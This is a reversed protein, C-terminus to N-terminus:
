TLPIIIADRHINIARTGNITGMTFQVRIRVEFRGLNGTTGNNTITGNNTLTAGDAVEVYGYNVLTAGETIIITGAPQSPHTDVNLRGGELIVLTGEIRLVADRRVNLVTAVYLTKGEPVVLTTGTTIGYGGAGPTSIVVANNDALAINLQTPNTGIFEVACDLCSGCPAADLEGTDLLEGCIACRIEWIGKETCTPEVVAEKDGPTHGNVCPDKPAPKFDAGDQIGNTARSIDLAALEEPTLTLLKFDDFYISSNVRIDEGNILRENMFIGFTNVGNLGGAGFGLPPRTVPDGGHSGFQDFPITVIMPETTETFLTLVFERNRTNWTGGPPATTTGIQIQFQQGMGDPKMYFQIANYASWNQNPSFSLSTGVYGFGDGLGYAYELGYESDGRPDLWEQQLNLMLEGSGRGLPWRDRLLQNSGFYFRYEFNDIDNPERVALDGFVVVTQGLLNGDVYVELSGASWVKAEIEARTFVAEYFGTAANLTAAKEVNEGVPSVMRITVVGTIDKLSASVTVSDAEGLAAIMSSSAQPFVVWAQPHGGGNVTELARIQNLSFVGDTFVSADDNIFDRIFTNAGSANGASSARTHSTRIQPYMSGNTWAMMWSVNTISTPVDVGTPGDRGTSERLIHAHSNPLNGTPGGAGSGYEAIAVIKGRDSAFKTLNNLSVRWPDGHQPYADFSVM